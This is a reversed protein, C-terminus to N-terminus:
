SLDQANVILWGGDAQRLLSWVTTVASEGTFEAEISGDPNVLTIDGTEVETRVLAHDGDVQDVEITWSEYLAGDARKGASYASEFNKLQTRCVQCGDTFLGRFADLDEGRSAANAAVFFRQMHKSVENASGVIV